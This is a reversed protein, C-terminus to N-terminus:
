SSMKFWVETILINNIINTNALPTYAYIGASLIIFVVELSRITYSQVFETKASRM